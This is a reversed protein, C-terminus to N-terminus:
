ITRLSRAHRVFSCKLNSASLPFDPVPRSLMQELSRTCLAAKAPVGGTVWSVQSFRMLYLSLNFGIRPCMNSKWAFSSPRLWCSVVYFPSHPQLKFSTNCWLKLTLSIVTLRKGLPEGDNVMQFIVKQKQLVGSLHWQILELNSLCCFFFFFFNWWPFLCAALPLNQSHMLEHIQVSRLCGM